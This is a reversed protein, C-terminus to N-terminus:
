TKSDRLQEAMKYVEQADAILRFGSFAGYPWNRVSSRKQLPIKWGGFCVDGNDKRTTLKLDFLDTPIYSHLQPEKGDILVLARQNTLAYYTVARRKKDRPFRFYVMNAGAVVFPIGFLAFLILVWSDQRNFSWLVFTEWGCSFLFFVLGFPIAVIDVLTFVVGQKPQGAWTLHEGPQLYSSFRQSIDYDIM